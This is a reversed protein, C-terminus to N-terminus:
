RDFFENEVRLCLAHYLPLQKEQIRYTEDEDVNLLIDSLGALKGGGRGTMGIVIAGMAKAVVAARRVNEANGSTSIAILVDGPKAYATVQQAYASAGDIDNVVASILASNATLDIAPLGQQLAGGWDEGIKETLAADLPRKKCFGKVLEGLIHASDASSGGNGCLLVKGGNAYCEILLDLAQLIADKQALLVPYAAFLADIENQVGPSYIM